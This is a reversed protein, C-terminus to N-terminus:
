LSRLVMQPPDGHAAQSGSFDDHQSIRDFAYVGVIRETKQLLRVVFDQAGMAAGHDAAMGRQPRCLVENQAALELGDRFLRQCGSRRLLLVLPPVVESCARALSHRSLM